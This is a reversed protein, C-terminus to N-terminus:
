PLLHTNRAHRAGMLAEYAYGRRRVDSDLMMGADGIM